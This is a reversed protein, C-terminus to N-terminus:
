QVQIEAMESQFRSFVLYGQEFDVCVQGLAGLIDDLDHAFETLTRPSVSREWEPPAKRLRDYLDQSRVHLGRLLHALLGAELDRPCDAVGPALLYSDTLTQSM